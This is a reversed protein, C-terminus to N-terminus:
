AVSRAAGDAETIARLLREAAKLDQTDFGETFQGYVNSLLERAEMDRGQSSRLQALAM